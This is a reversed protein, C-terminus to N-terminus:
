SREPRTGAQMMIRALKQFFRTQRALAEPALLDEDFVESLLAASAFHGFVLHMWASIM